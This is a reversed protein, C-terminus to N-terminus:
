VNLGRPGSVFPNGRLYFRLPRDADKTIGIRVGVGIEDPEHDDHALWLPGEACLDLGDAWPGIRLAQALRGPGRALDRLTETGRNARMLAIGELPELARILVGAGTGAAESSVNLMWSTGYALYVYAHGPEGFMSRTRPTMGRFAHSAADGVVYAETEVIRGSIVGEPTERVVQKGILFRALAATDVPLEARALPTM